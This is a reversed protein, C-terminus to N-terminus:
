ADFFLQYPRSLQQAIQVTSMNRVWRFHEKGELFVLLTPATFVRNQAAIAPQQDNRVELLLIKPFDQEFLKDVKPQLVQCVGCAPASFYIAVGQENAIQENIAALNKISKV